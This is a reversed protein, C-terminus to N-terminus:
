KLKTKFWKRMAATTCSKSITQELCMGYERGEGEHAKAKKLLKVLSTNARNKYVYSLFGKPDRNYIMMGLHMVREGVLKDNLLSACVNDLKSFVKSDSMPTLMMEMMKVAKPNAVSDILVGAKLVKDSSYDESNNTIKDLQIKGTPTITYYRKMEVKDPEGKAVDKLYYYRSITFHKSDKDFELRHNGMNNPVTYEKHPEIMLVERLDNIYGMMMADTLNGNSDYVAIFQELNDSNYRSYRYNRFARYVVVAYCRDLARVCFKLPLFDDYDKEFDQLYLGMVRPMADKEEECLSLKPEYHWDDSFGIFTNTYAEGDNMNIGAGEVRGRPNMRSPKTFVPNDCDDPLGVVSRWDKDSACATIASIVVVLLLASKKM